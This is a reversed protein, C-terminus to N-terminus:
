QNPTPSTQNISKNVQQKAKNNLTQIKFKNISKNLLQKLKLNTHMNNTQNKYNFQHKITQTLKQKPHKAKSPNTQQPLKISNSM